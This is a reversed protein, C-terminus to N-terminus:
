GGGGGGCADCHVNSYQIYWTPRYLVFASDVVARCDGDKMHPRRLPLVHTDACIPTPSEDLSPAPPWQDHSKGNVPLAFVGCALVYLGEVNPYVGVILAQCWTHTGRLAAAPRRPAPPVGM